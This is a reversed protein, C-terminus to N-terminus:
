TVHTSDAVSHKLLPRRDAAAYCAQQQLVVAKSAQRMVEFQMGQMNNFMLRIKVHDADPRVRKEHDADRRVRKM